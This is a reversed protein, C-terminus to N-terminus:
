VDETLYSVKPEGFRATKAREVLSAVQPNTTPDIGCCEGHENKNHRSFPSGYPSWELRYLMGGFIHKEIDEIPLYGEFAFLWPQSGWVKGSFIVRTLYPAAIIAPTSILFLFVGPAIFSTGLSLFAISVLWVIGSVQLLIAAAFRKWSRRKASAVRKFSKWRVFAGRAGDIIVTDDEGIGAIGVNPEIDWLKVGYADKMNHWPQSPHVPVTAILRELLRDSDNALSLRSFAQFASDTRDIVPRTRLLGMLAYSHDGPLYQTTQRTQLCELALTVLELRSLILNGEYHDILQRSVESDDWVKAAFQNKELQFSAFANSSCSILIPKGAPALLVEPFTWIRAGWQQLMDDSTAISPNSASPGIAIVLQTCGRIVDCIRYVDEEIQNADPMCSCGIWFGAVGANRAAEEAVGLLITLDERTKFQEATYAVFIYSRPNGPQYRQACQELNWGRMELSEPNNLICLYRPGLLRNSVAQVEMGAVLLKRRVVPDEEIVNRAVKPYAHYRYNFSEYGPRKEYEAEGVM